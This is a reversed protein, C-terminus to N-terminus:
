QSRRMAFGLSDVYKGSNGFIGVFRGTGVPITVPTKGELYGVELKQNMNTCVRVGVLRDNQAFLEVTSFREEPKFNWTVGPKTESPRMGGITLYTGDQKKMMVRGFGNDIPYWTLSQVYVDKNGILSYDCGGTASGVAKNCTFTDLSIDHSIVSM